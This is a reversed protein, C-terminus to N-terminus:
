DLFIKGPNLINLPDLVQKIQKMLFIEEQNRSYCLDKRKILGIGHEASISGNYSRVIKFISQELEESLKFFQKKDMSSPGVYNIHVNGDGMHGFLIMDIGSESVQSRIHCVDFVFSPLQQIPVSIDNKRVLYSAGISETIFERLQWIKEFSSQDDALFGDSALKLDFIKEFFTALERHEKDASDVEILGYYPYLRAFPTKISSFHGLVTEHAKQSFFEFASLSLGEKHCMALIEHLDKFDSCAVLLVSHGKPLPALKLTAKTIIGLTGESGIFLQKLDYGTNNKRLQSNMNLIKGDALVVELGLVQERMGGYRIFKLGGANTAINGGIQCSGKAALDLPFFLGATKAAEQVNQTIAGAEVEISLGKIDIQLIKNMKMMSIVLEKKNAVAGAALGTRGGSPVVPIKHRYAYRLLQCVQETNEPFCVALPDPEYEKTWDKAYYLMQTYNTILQGSHPLIGFLDKVIEDSLFAQHM